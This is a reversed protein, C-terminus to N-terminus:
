IGFAVRLAAKLRAIVVSSPYYAVAIVQLVLQCWIHVLEVKKRQSLPMRFLLTCRLEVISLAKEFAELASVDGFLTGLYKVSPVVQLDAVKPPWPGVGQLLLRTKAVNLKLGTYQGLEAFAERM